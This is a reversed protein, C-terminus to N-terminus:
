FSFGPLMSKVTVIIMNKPVKQDSPTAAPRTGLGAAGAGRQDGAGRGGEQPKVGAQGDPKGLEDGDSYSPSFNFDNERPM